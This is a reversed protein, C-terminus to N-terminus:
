SAVTVKMGLDCLSEVFSFKLAIDTKFMSKFFILLISV